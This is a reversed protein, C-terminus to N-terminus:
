VCVQQRYGIDLVYRVGSHYPIVVYGLVVCEV